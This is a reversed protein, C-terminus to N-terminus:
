RGSGVVVGKRVHEARARHARMRYNDGNINFVVSRHLLRDLMAAAVTSDDLIRGWYAIGRDTTLAISGKGYRQSVVQFLATAAEAPLPLYGHSVCVTTARRKLSSIPSQTKSVLNRSFRRTGRFWQRM